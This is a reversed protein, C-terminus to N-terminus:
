ARKIFAERKQLNYMAMLICLITGIVMYLRNYFTTEQWILTNVDTFSLFPNHFLNWRSEQFYEGGFFYVLGILILIIAAANGNKVLTSLMLSFSLVFLLPFMLQFMMYFVSYPLLALNSILSLIFLIMMTILLSVILRVLYVKYRYNPIGFINELMRVELDNQIGFTGPYFILLLGPVLLVLYIDGQDFESEPNLLSITVILIFLIVASLLFYIFRNSFVIKAHFLTLSKLTKFHTQLTNKM